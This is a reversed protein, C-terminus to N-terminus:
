KTTAFATQHSTISLQNGTNSINNYGTVIALGDGQAIPLCRGSVDGGANTYSAASYGYASAGPGVAQAQQQVEGSATVAGTLNIDGLALVQGGSVIGFNMTTQGDPSTYAKVFLDQMGIVKGDLEAFAEYETPVPFIWVWKIGVTGSDFDSGEIGATTTGQGWTQSFSGNPGTSLAHGGAAVTLEGEISASATQLCGINGTAYASAHVDLIAVGKVYTASLGGTDLKEGTSFVMAFTKFTTESISAIAIAKGDDIKWWLFYLDKGLGTALAEVTFVGGAQSWGMEKIDEVAPNGVTAGAEAYAFVDGCNGHCDQGNGPVPTEGIYVWESQNEPHGNPFYKITGATNGNVKQYYGPPGQEPPGANAMNPVVFAISLAAIGVILLKKLKRLM